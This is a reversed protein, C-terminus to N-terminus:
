TVNADSSPTAAPASTQPDAAANEQARVDQAAALAADASAAADDDRVAPAPGSANVAILAPTDTDISADDQYDAASYNATQYDPGSASWDVAPGAPYEDAASQWHVPTLDEPPAYVPVASDQVAVDRVGIMERWTDGERQMHTPTSLALLGGTALGGILALGTIRAATSKFIHM